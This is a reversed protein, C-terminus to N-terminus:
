SVWELSKRGLQIQFLLHSHKSTMHCLAISTKWKFALLSKQLQAEPHSSDSQCRSQFRASSGPLGQKSEWGVSVSILSIYQQLSCRKYYNTMCCYFIFIRQLLYKASIIEISKWLLRLFNILNSWHKYLLIRLNLSTSFYAWLWM